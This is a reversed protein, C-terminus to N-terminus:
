HPRQDTYSHRPQRETHHECFIRVPYLPMQTSKALALLECGRHKVKTEDGGGHDKDQDRHTDGILYM